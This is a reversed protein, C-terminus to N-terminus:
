SLAEQLKIRKELMKDTFKKVAGSMKTIFQEDRGARIIKHGVDEHRFMFDCWDRECIWLQSQVQPVYISPVKGKLLYSVMTSGKPNKQEFLGDENVLCDPSCGVLRDENRYVFSVPKLTNDTLLEYLAETEPEREHGLETFKNGKWHDVPKGARWDALLQNMYGEVQTSAKGDSTIICGMMSATPIGNRLLHWEPTNQPVDDIIICSM